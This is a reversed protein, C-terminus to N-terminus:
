FSSTIVLCPFCLCILDSQLHHFLNWKVVESRFSSSGSSHIDSFLTIKMVPWLDYALFFLDCFSIGSKWYFDYAFYDCKSFNGLESCPYFAIWITYKFLYYIDDIMKLKELRSSFRTKLRSILTFHLIYKICSKFISIDRNDAM